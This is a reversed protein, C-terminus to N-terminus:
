HAGRPATTFSLTGGSAEFEAQTIDACFNETGEVAHPHSEPCGADAGSDEAEEECEVGAICAAARDTEDANTDGFYTVAGMAVLAILAVLLCYEVLSAGREDRGLRALVRGVLDKVRGDAM